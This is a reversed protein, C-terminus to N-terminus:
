QGLGPPLMDALMEGFGAQLVKPEAAAFLAPSDRLAIMAAVEEEDFLGPPLSLPSPELPLGPLLSPSQNPREDNVCFSNAKKKRREARLDPTGRSPRTTAGVADAVGIPGVTLKPSLSSQGDCLHVSHAKGRLASGQRQRSKSLFVYKEGGDNQQTVHALNHREALSHVYKRQYVSFSAALRVEMCTPDNLFREIEERVTELEEQPLEAELSRRGFLAKSKQLEVRTKRGSLEPTAGLKELAAKAEGPSDYRVFATGRFSGNADHHFDVKMPKVNHNDLIRALEEEKLDLPLNKVVLTAVKVDELTSGNQSSPRHRSSQLSAKRKTKNSESKGDPDKFDIDACQAQVAVTDFDSTLVSNIFNSPTHFSREGLVSLPQRPVFEPASPNFAFQASDEALMM